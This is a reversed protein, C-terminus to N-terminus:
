DDNSDYVDDCVEQAEDGFANDNREKDFGKKMILVTLADLVENTTKADVVEPLNKEIFARSKESMRIM